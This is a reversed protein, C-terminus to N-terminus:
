SRSTAIAVVVPTLRSPSNSRATRTGGSWNRQPVHVGYREAVERDPIRGAKRKAPPPEDDSLPPGGNHGIGAVVAESLRPATRAGRGDRSRARPPQRVEAIKFM